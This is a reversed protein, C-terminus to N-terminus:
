LVLYLDDIRGWLPRIKPAIPANAPCPNCRFHPRLPSHNKGNKSPQRLAAALSALIALFGSASLRFQLSFGPAQGKESLLNPGPLGWSFHLM